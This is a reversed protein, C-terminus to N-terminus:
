KSRVIITDCTIISTGKKIEDGIDQLGEIRVPKSIEIKPISSEPIFFMSALLMVSLFGTFINAGRFLTYAKKLDSVKRDNIGSNTNISDLLDSIEEQNFEEKSSFSRNVTDASKRKYSFRHANLYRSSILITWFYLVLTALFVIILSVKFCSNTQTLKDLYMPIFLGVLSLIVGSQGLVQSMKGEIINQRENEETYLERLYAVKEELNDTYSYAM